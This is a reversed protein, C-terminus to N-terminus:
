GDYRQAGAVAKLEIGGMGTIWEEVAEYYVVEGSAGEMAGAMFVWNLIELGGNGGEAVVRNEDWGLLLEPTGAVLANMVTRDFETNIRGMEPLALWHSLGGGGVVVVRLGAPLSRVYEALMVGLANARALRPAPNMSTNIIVPVIPLTRGPDILLSPLVIGHDPKYDQLRALDFDNKLAYRLFGDAFDAQGTLVDKPLGMDGFPTFAADTAVAFPAQLNLDYNYMHDSSAIVVLDPKLARIRAGIELMGQYVREGAEGGSYRKMLIHATGFGGVISGV